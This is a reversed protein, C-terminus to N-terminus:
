CFIISLSLCPNDRLQQLIDAPSHYKFVKYLIGLMPINSRSFVMRYLQHAIFSRPYSSCIIFEALICCANPFFAELTTCSNAIRTLANPMSNRKIHDACFSPFPAFRTIKQRASFIEKQNKNFYSVSLKSDSSSIICDLFVFSNNIVEGPKVILSSHYCNRLNYLICHAMALSRPDKNKYFIVHACDDVFRKASFLKRDAGLNAFTNHEGRVCVLIALSSSLQGGMPVGFTQRLLHHPGVTFYANEICFMAVNFADDASFECCAM